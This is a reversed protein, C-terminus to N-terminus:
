QWGKKLWWQWSEGLLGACYEDNAYTFPNQQCKSIEQRRQFEPTSIQASYMSYCSYMMGLMLVGALLRKNKM